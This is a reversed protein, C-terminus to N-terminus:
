SWYGAGSAMMLKTFHPHAFDFHVIDVFQERAFAIGGNGHVSRHPHESSQSFLSFSGSVISFSHYQVIYNIFTDFGVDLKGCIEGKASFFVCFFLIKVLSLFFYKLVGLM